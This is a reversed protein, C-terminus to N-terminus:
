SVACETAMVRTNEIKNKYRWGKPGSRDADFLPCAIKYRRVFKPLTARLVRYCSMCQRNGVSCVKSRVFKFRGLCAM